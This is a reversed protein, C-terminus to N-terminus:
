VIRILMKSLYEPCRRKVPFNQTTFHFHPCSHNSQKAQKPIQRTDLLLPLFLIHGLRTRRTPSIQRRSSSTTLTWNPLTISCSSDAVYGIHECKSAQASILFRILAAFGTAMARLRLALKVITEM